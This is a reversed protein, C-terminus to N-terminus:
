GTMALLCRQRLECERLRTPSRAPRLAPDQRPQAAASGASRLDAAPRLHAPPRRRRRYRPLLGGSRGSRNAAFIAQDRQRSDSLLPEAVPEPDGFKPGIHALDGSILYCIPEPTQAEAQRLAEVMRRIDARVTPAIGGEVCDQFSGVVLPVIRIPRKGEYLYQLFVVELEISHEPLHAMLEDDFLGDGYAQVLRDIYAQDTPTVGLPTKFHKRTLTFRHSSYHSTGVIVFLAADTREYVEKYGWAYTPGGRPYDIHPILAARLRGDPRPTRPKGPGRRGTFLRDLQRRLPGPEGEYCGICRPERVTQHAAARFRPGELFLADELRQVLSAFLELPLVEGGAQRMAEAQIDRLSRQGDFLRLWFFERVSMREPQPSLGLQDVLYVHKPDDRDQAPVVYPRLRPCEQILM